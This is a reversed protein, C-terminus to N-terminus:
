GNKGEDLVESSETLFSIDAYALRIYSNLELSDDKKTFLFYYAPEWIAVWGMIEFSDQMLNYFSTQGLLSFLLSIGHCIALFLIGFVFRIRWKKSKRKREYLSKQIKKLYFKKILQVALQKDEESLNKSWINIKISDVVRIKEAADMLFDNFKENLSLNNKEGFDDNGVLNQISDLYVNITKQSNKKMRAIM